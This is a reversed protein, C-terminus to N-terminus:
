EDEDSDKYECMNRYNCLVHCMVYSQNDMFSEDTYIEGIIDVAWQLAAQLDEMNFPIVTKKGGDLFHNWVILDPFFGMTQKMADAYLYMQKKYTNFSDLQNKLPTVGDTKMFHGASKHDVLIIQGDSKRKLILDAFGIMKYGQITWNFKKEVGLVDYKEFFDDIDLDGLYQCLAAYKKDYANDSMYETIHNEFDDICENLAETVTMKKSFIRELLDHGYSGAEAHGNGEGEEKEIKKLYFSYPCTEYQHLTSFSLVIKDLEDKYISM